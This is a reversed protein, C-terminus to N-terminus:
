VQTDFSHSFLCVLTRKKVLRSEDRMVFPSPNLYPELNLFLSSNGVDISTDKSLVDQISPYRPYDALFADLPLHRYRNRAGIQDGVQFAKVQELFFFVCKLFFCFCDRGQEVKIMSIVQSRLILGIFQGRANIVPFGNHDNSRLIEVVQQLSVVVPLCVPNARM